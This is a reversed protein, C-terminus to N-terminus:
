QAAIERLDNILARLDFGFTSFPHALSVNACWNTEIELAFRADFRKRDARIAREFLTVAITAPYIASPNGEYGQEIRCRLKCEFSAGLSM